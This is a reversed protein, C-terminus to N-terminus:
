SAQEVPNLWFTLKGDEKRHHPRSLAFYGKGAKKLLERIGTKVVEQEMEYNECDIKEWEKTVKEPLKSAICLVLGANQFIAGGGLYVAGDGSQFADYIIRLKAKEAPDTSFVGFEGEDWACALSCRSTYLESNQSFDPVKNDWTDVLYLGESGPMKGKTWGFIPSKPVSAIKRRCLGFDTDKPNIGFLKKIGAIGWEHESTFDAGLSLGILIGEEIWFKSDNARRM